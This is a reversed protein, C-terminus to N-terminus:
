GLRANVECARLLFKHGISGYKDSSLLYSISKLSKEFSKITQDEKFLSELDKIHRSDSLQELISVLSDINEPINESSQQACGQISLFNVYSINKAGSLQNSEEAGDSVIGEYPSM